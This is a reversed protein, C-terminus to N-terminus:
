NNLIEDFDFNKRMIYDFNKSNKKLYEKHDMSILYSVKEKFKEYGTERLTSEEPFNLDLDPHNLLNCSLIKKELVISEQLMTSNVGIILKSQFINLYSHFENKKGQSINFDLNEIYKKYFVEEFDSYNSELPFKGSFILSLKNEKCFKVVYKAVLGKIEAYDSIYAFDGNLSRQPESILCIDYKNKDYNKIKEKLTEMIFNTKLSGIIHFKKVKVNKKLYLDQYHKGFIFLNDFYLKQFNDGERGANQIAFFKIKSNKFIKTTISFDESNDIHTLVIKPSIMKIMIVLYNQKITRKFFNKFIYFIINKNIYFENIKEARTPLIFYEKKKLLIQLYKTLTDDYIIYDVKPPNKFFIKLTKVKKLFIIPLRLFKSFFSLFLKNKSFKNFGKRLFYDKFYEDVIFLSNNETNLLSVLNKKKEM